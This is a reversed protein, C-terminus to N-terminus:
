VRSVATYHFEIHRTVAAAGNTGNVYFGSDGQESVGGAINDGAAMTIKGSNGAKDYLTVTPAAKMIVPLKVSQYHVYDANAVGSTYFLSSGVSTVAGPFVSQLYSKQYYRQCLKLDDGTRRPILPTAVSGVELKAWQIYISGTTSIVGPGNLVIMYVTLLTANTAITQTVEYTTWSTTFSTIYANTASIGDYLTIGPSASTITASSKVRFSATVTKGRYKEFDEVGQLLHWSRTAGTVGVNTIELECCQTFGTEMNVANKKVNVTPLTGGGAVSNVFYGDATYVTTAPNTFTTNEQWISFDQNILINDSKSNIATAVAKETPVADDSDGALTGDTSFENIGTGSTLEMKGDALVLVPTATNYTGWNSSAAFHLKATGWGGAQLISYILFGSHNDYTGGYNTDTAIQLSRREGHTSSIASGSGIGLGTSVTLRAGPTTTGIGVQGDADVTLAPDPAGDSAVLESHRHLTDAISNDTLTNLEAGTASTNLHDEIDHDAGSAYNIWSTGDGYYRKEEDEVYIERGEDDATWAPLTSVIEGKFLGVMNFGHAKM